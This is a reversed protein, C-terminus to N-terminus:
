QRITQICTAVFAAPARATIANTAAIPLTYVSYAFPIVLDPDATTTGLASATLSQGSLGLGVGGISTQIETAVPNTATPCIQTSTDASVSTKTIVRNATGARDNKVVWTGNTTGRPLNYTTGNYNFPVVALPRNTNGTDLLGAPVGTSADGIASGSLGIITQGSPGFWADVRDGGSVFAPASSSAKGGIKVPNGSDAADHAVNGTAIVSGGGGGSVVSVPLPSADTVPTFEGGVAGFGISQTPVYPATNRVPAAHAVLAVVSLMAAAILYHKKM